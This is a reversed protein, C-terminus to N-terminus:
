PIMPVVPSAVLVGPHGRERIAGPKVLALHRSPAGPAFPAAQLQEVTVVMLAIGRGQADTSVSGILVTGCSTLGTSGCGNLLAPYTSDSVGAEVDIVFQLGGGALHQYMVTGVVPRALDCDVLAVGTGECDDILDITHTYPAFAPVSAPSIRALAAVLLLISLLM